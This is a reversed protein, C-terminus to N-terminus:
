TSDGFSPSTKPDESKKRARPTVFGPWSVNDFVGSGGVRMIGLSGIRGLWAISGVGTFTM